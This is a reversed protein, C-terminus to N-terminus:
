LSWWYFLQESCAVYLVGPCLYMGSLGAVCQQQLASLELTVRTACAAALCSIFIPFGCAGFIINFHMLIHSNRICLCRLNEDVVKNNGQQCHVICEIFLPHQAIAMGHEVLQRALVSYALCWTAALNNMGNQSKGVPRRLVYLNLKAKSAAENCLQIRSPGSPKSGLRITQLCFANTPHLIVASYGTFPCCNIDCHRETKLHSRRSGIWLGILGVLGICLARRAVSVSSCPEPRPETLSLETTRQALAQLLRCCDDLTTALELFDLIPSPCRLETWGCLKIHGDCTTAALESNRGLQM